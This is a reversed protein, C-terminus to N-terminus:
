ASCGAFALIEPLYRSFSQFAHDGGQVVIQRAGAYREVAVGQDRAQLIEKEAVAIAADPLAPPAPCAYCGPQGRGAFLDRLLGAKFSQPM